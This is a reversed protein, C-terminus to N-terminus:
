AEGERGVQNHKYLHHAHELPMRRAQLRKGRQRLLEPPTSGAQPRQTLLPRSTRQLRTAEIQRLLDPARSTRQLRASTSPTRLAPLPTPVHLLNGRSGQLDPSAGCAHLHPRTSTHARAIRQLRTSALSRSAHQPHLSTYSAFLYPARSIRQMRTSTSTYLCPARSAHQLRQRKAELARATNNTTTPIELKREDVSKAGLRNAQGTGVLMLTTSGPLGPFLQPFGALRLPGRRPASGSVKAPSGRIVRPTPLPLPYEARRVTPHTRFM